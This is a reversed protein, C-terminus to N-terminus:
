LNNYEYESLDDEEKMLDEMANVDYKLGIGFNRFHKKNKVSWKAFPNFGINFQLSIEKNLKYSLLNSLTGDTLDVEFFNDFKEYEYSTSLKLENAGPTDQAM